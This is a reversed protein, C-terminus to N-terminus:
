LHPKDAKAVQVVLDAIEKPSQATSIGEELLLGAKKFYPLYPDKEKSFRTGKEAFLDMDTAVPGMEIISVQINWPKLNYALTETIAELAFKTAAYTALSPAPRFGSRSGINIIHGSQAKRMHPLVNHLIRIAGFFNVDFQKQIKAIECNEVAGFLLMGANNVLVDVKEEQHIVKTIAEQISKEDTVDMTLLSVLQPYKRQLKQFHKTQSTKRLTGYVTYGNQAFAECIHLGIGRSAGTVLVVEQSELHSSFCFLSFIVFLVKQM